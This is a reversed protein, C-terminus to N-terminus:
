PAFGRRVLPLYVFRTDLPGVIFSSRNQYCEGYADCSGQLVSYTGLVAGEGSPWATDLWRVESGALTETWLQEYVLSGLPTRIQITSTVPLAATAQLNELRVALGVTGGPEVHGPAVSLATDLRPLTVVAQAENNGADYETVPDVVTKVLYVRIEGSGSDIRVVVEQEATFVEKKYASVLAAELAELIVERALNRESALQTIAAMFESKM